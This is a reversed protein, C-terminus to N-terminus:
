SPTPVSQCLEILVGNNDKPHVFAVLKEDAGRSPEESLLRFGAEKLRALEQHIDEVEFAIHHVGEGRSDVFKQIVSQDGTAGLLEVKSEGMRFFATDVKQSEVVERKYCPTDLLSEYTEIAAELDKVAIGIHEIKM